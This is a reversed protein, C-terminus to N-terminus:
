WTGFASFRPAVQLDTLQIIRPDLSGGLKELGMVASDVTKSRIPQLEGESIAASQSPMRELARTVNNIGVCLHAKLFDCFYPTYDSVLM